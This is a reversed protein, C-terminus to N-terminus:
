ELLHSNWPISLHTPWEREPRRCVTRANRIGSAPQTHRLHGILPWWYRGARMTACWEGPQTWCGRCTERGARRYPRMLLWRRVRVIRSFGAHPYHSAPRAPQHKSVAPCLSLGPGPVGVDRVGMKAEDTSAGLKERGAAVM